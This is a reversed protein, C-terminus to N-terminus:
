NTLTDAEVFLKFPPKSLRQVAAERSQSVSAVPGERRSGSRIEFGLSFDGMPLDM